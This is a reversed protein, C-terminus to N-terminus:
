PPNDFTEQAMALVAQHTTHLLNQEGHLQFLYTEINTSRSIADTRLTEVETIVKREYSRINQIEEDRSSNSLLFAARYEQFIDTIREPITFHTLDQIGDLSGLSVFHNNLLVFSRGHQACNKSISHYDGTFHIKAPLFCATLSAAVAEFRAPFSYFMIDQSSDFIIEV